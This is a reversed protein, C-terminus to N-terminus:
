LALFTSCRKIWCWFANTITTVDSYRLFFLSIIAM